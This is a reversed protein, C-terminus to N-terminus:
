CHCTRRGYVIVGDIPLDQLLLLRLLQCPHKPADARSAVVWIFWTGNATAVVPRQTRGLVATWPIVYGLILWTLCAVASLTVTILHYGDMALRVALVNTGAIFTFFGFGRAPDTFDEVVRRALV